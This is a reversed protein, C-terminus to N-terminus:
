RSNSCSILYRIVYREILNCSFFSASSSSSSCYCALPFYVWTITHIKQIFKLINYRAMGHWAMGVGYATVNHLIHITSFFKNADVEVNFGWDDNEIKNFLWVGFLWNSKTAQGIEITSTKRGFLLLLIFNAGCLWLMSWHGNGMYTYVNPKWM